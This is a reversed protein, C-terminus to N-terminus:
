KGKPKNGPNNREEAEKKKRAEEAAAIKALLKRAEETSGQAGANSVITNKVKTGLGTNGLLNV